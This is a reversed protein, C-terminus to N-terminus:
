ITLQLFLPSYNFLRCIFHLNLCKDQSEVCVCVQEKKRDKREPDTLKCYLKKKKRELEKDNM